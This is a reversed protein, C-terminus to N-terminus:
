SFYQQWGLGVMNAVALGIATFAVWYPIERVIALGGSLMAFLILFLPLYTDLEIM